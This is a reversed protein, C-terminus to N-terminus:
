SNFPNRPDNKAEQYIEIHKPKKEPEVTSFLFAIRQIEKSNKHFDSSDLLKKIYAGLFYNERDRQKREDKKSDNKVEPNLAAEMKKVANKEATVTRNKRLLLDLTDHMTFYADIQEQNSLVAVKQELNTRRSPDNALILQLLTQRKMYANREHRCKKLIELEDNTFQAIDKKSSVTYLDLLKQECKRKFMLKNIHRLVDFYDTNTLVLPKRGAM